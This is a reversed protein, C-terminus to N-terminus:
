YGDFVREEEREGLGMRFNSHSLKFGFTQFGRGKEWGSEAGGSKFM